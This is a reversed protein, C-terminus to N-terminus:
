PFERPLMPNHFLWRARDLMRDAKALQEARLEAPDDFIGAFARRQAGSTTFENLLILTWKLAHLPMLRALRASFAEPRIVRRAVAALFRRGLADRLSMGPHLLVDSVLKVPDDWGFYEFDVFALSGDPRKVANHLGFDSPSLTREAHDLVHEAAAPGQLSRAVEEALRDFPGRLFARAESALPGTLTALRSRRRALIALLEAASFSGESAVPLERGKGQGALANLREWFAIMEELDSAAAEDVRPPVGEVFSYLACDLEPFAALPQAIAREGERWLFSLATFEVHLRDRADGPLRHYRKLVVAGCEADRWAYVQSNRGGGLRRMESLREGPRPSPATQGAELDPNGIRALGDRALRRLAERRGGGAESRCGRGTPEPLCSM